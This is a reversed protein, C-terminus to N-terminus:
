NISICVLTDIATLLVMLYLWRSKYGIIINKKEIPSKLIDWDKIKCFLKFRYDKKELSIANFRNQQQFSTFLDFSDNFILNVIM